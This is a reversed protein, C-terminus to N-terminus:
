HAHGEHGHGDGIPVRKPAPLVAYAPSQAAGQAAIVALLVPPIPTVQRGNVYVLPTGQIGLKVALEIDEQLKAQTEKADVCVALKEPPLYATAIERVKEITLGQQAEFIRGTMEFAKEHGEMCIQAKAAYCRVSPDSKRQMNPNCAGDLPFHRPELKFAGAPFFAALEKLAGHLQACHGCLADTWDVITVPATAAGITARGAPLSVPKGDAYQLLFNSTAQQAEPPLSQLYGKLQEVLAPDGGGGVLPNPGTPATPTSPSPGGALKSPLMDSQQKAMSKPTQLGPYLLLLFCAITLGGACLVARPADVFGAGKTGLLAVAAYAGVLVYTGICGTCLHGAALSAGALVVVTAVGAIGTLRVATVLAPRRAADDDVLLWLPLLFAVLGWVLGWGAVPLGTAGHVASAFSSDWVATCNMTEGAACFPDGGARAVLLEGWLFLAWLASLAGSVVLLGLAKKSPALAAAPPGSTEIPKKKAM